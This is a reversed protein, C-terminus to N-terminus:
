SSLAESVVSTSPASHGQKALATQLASLFLAVNRPSSTHGMLGVRWAKGAFDGLGGGIEISFQALLQERVPLDEVGDPIRVTTLSPLRYQEDVVLQLGLAELGCTRHM